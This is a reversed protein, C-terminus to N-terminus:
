FIKRNTLSLALFQWNDTFSLILGLSNAMLPTWDNQSETSNSMKWLHLSRGRHGPQLRYKIKKITQEQRERKSLPKMVLSLSPFTKSSRSRTESGSYYTQWIRVIFSDKLGESNLDNDKKEM